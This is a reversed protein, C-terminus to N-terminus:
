HDSEAWHSISWGAWISWVLYMNRNQDVRPRKFPPLSPYFMRNRPSININQLPPTGMSNQFQFWFLTKLYFVTDWLVFNHWMCPMTILILNGELGNVSCSGNYSSGPRPKSGTVERMVDKNELWQACELGVFDLGSGYSTQSYRLAFNCHQPIIRVYTRHYRM